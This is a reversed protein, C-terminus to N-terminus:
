SLGDEGGQLVTLELEPFRKVKKFSLDIEDQGAHNFCIPIYPCPSYQMCSQSNRYWTQDGKKRQLDRAIDVIENLLDEKDQEDRYIWIRKFYFEDARQIYDIKLREYFSKMSEKERMKLLPKKALNYFVGHITEGTEYETAIIYLTNQIDTRLKTKYREFSNDGYTKNELLWWKGDPMKWLGDRKGVIFVRLDEAEYICSCFESEPKLDVFEHADYKMMYGILMSRTVVSNYECQELFSEDDPLEEAHAEFM